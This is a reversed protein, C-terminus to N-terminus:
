PAQPATLDRGVTLYGRLGPEGSRGTRYAVDQRAVVSKRPPTHHSGVPAEQPRVLPLLRPPEAGLPHAHDVATHGPPSSAYSFPTPEGGM